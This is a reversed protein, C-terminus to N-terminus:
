DGPRALVEARIDVVGARIMHIREAAARSLDLIRRRDGFPGRDNIRVIVSEGSDVRTVRVVTDFPLDRSAATLRAPDYREGNATRRGALRDSYYSARGTYTALVEPGGHPDDVRPEALALLSDRDTDTPPPRCPTRSVSESESEDAPASGEREADPSPEEGPPSGAGHAAPVSEPAGVVTVTDEQEPCDERYGAPLARPYGTREAYRPNDIRREDAAYLPERGGGCGLTLLCLVLARAIM